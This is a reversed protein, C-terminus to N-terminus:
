WAVASIYYTGGERYEAWDLGLTMRLGYSNTQFLSRQPQAVVPTTNDVLELPTTDEMHLTAQNSMSFEPGFDSAFTLAQDDVLFVAGVPCNNSTIVPFGSFAGANLEDRFLFAGNALMINSLGIRHTPNMIWTASNGLNNAVLSAVATKVDALIDAATAGGSVHTDAGAIAVLGAPRVTDAATADVFLTDLVEATDELMAQRIIAEINPTSHRMIKNTFTSIVGMEKPTLTKSTFLGQKVPIPAGEAVFGGSLQKSASRTPIEISGNSDFTHRMGPVRPYISVPKLLEMFEGFGTRVLEEAWGTVDTMAPASVAKTMALVDKDGKYSETAVQLPNANGIHGRVLNGLAAFMLHGKEHKGGVHLLSKIGTDAPEAQPASRSRQASATEDRQLTKIMHETRDRQDLFDDYSKMEVDTMDRLEADALSKLATIQDNIAVVADQNSQIQESITHMTKNRNQIPHQRVDSAQTLMARLEPSLSKTALLAQSNAPVSVLSCEMLSNNSLKAGGWPDKPDLPEADGAMFGVSVTKLIRQELLSRMEDVIKSTGAMALKLFGQLKGDVVKVREWTGVPFNSNHNFLAIPNSKFAKLDWDQVVIDGMRDVASTSMVFKFPDEKSQVGTKEIVTPMFFGMHNYIAKLKFTKLQPHAVSCDKKIFSKCTTTDRGPHNYRTTATVRLPGLVLM